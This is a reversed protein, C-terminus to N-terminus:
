ALRGARRGTRLDRDALRATGALRGPAPWGPITPRGPRRNTRLSRPRATCAIATTVAVALGAMIRLDTRVGRRAIVALAAVLGIGAIGWSDLVLRRLRQSAAIEFVHITGQVIHLRSAMQGSLSRPGGPYLILRPIPELSWAAGVVGLAILAARPM